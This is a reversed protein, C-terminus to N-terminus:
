FSHRKCVNMIFNDVQGNDTGDNACFIDIMGAQIILNSRKNVVNACFNDTGTYKKKTLLNPDFTLKPSVSYCSSVPYRANNVIGNM